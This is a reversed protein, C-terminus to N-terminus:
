IERNYIKSIEIKNKCILMLAGLVGCCGFVAGAIPLSFIEGLLGAILNALFMGGFVLLQFFSNVRARKEKPIYSQVSSERINASNVGLFGEIFKIIIMIPFAVFMLIGDLADYIIYVKSAIAYRKEIPIKIMYHLAGGVTRGITEASLLLSYHTTNYIMHSQFFPVLLLSVGQSAFITVSMYLYIFLIGKEKKLYLVGEKIDTFYEQLSYKDSIRNVEEYKIFLEVSACILLLVGEIIFLIEIGVSEYVIAAIPTFSAAIIPYILVSVSYGKQSFGEPILDPFLSNYALSYIVGITGAIFGVVIFLYYNFDVSILYVGFVTYIAGLLYDLFVIIKKRSIRDIYPAVIVPFLVQPIIIVANYIGTLM